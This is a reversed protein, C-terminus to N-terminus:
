EACAIFDPSSSQFITRCYQIECLINRLSARPFAHVGFPSSSPRNTPWACGSLTGTCAISDGPRSQQRRVLTRQCDGWKTGEVGESLGILGDLPVQNLRSPYLALHSLHVAM